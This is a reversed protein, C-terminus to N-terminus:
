LARLGELVAQLMSDTPEADPPAGVRLAGAAVMDSVLLRTLSPPAALASAVEAISRPTACLRLVTAQEPRLEDEEGPERAAVVMSALDLVPTTDGAGATLVFPRLLRGPDADSVATM